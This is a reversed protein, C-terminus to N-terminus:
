STEGNDNEKQKQPENDNDFVAQAIDIKRNNVADTIRDNMIGSFAQTFEVPKHDIAFHILDSIDYKNFDSM